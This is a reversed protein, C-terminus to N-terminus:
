RDLWYDMVRIDDGSTQMIVHYLGFKEITSLEAPEDDIQDEPLEDGMLGYATLMEQKKQIYQYISIKVQYYNFEEISTRNKLVLRALWSKPNLTKVPDFLEFFLKDEEGEIAQLDTVMYKRVTIRDLNMYKYIKKKYKIYKFHWIKVDPKFFKHNDILQKLSEDAVQEIIELNCDALAAVIDIRAEPCDIDGYMEVIRNIEQGVGWTIESHKMPIYYKKDGIRIVM